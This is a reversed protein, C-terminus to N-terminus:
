PPGIPISEAPRTGLRENLWSEDVFRRLLWRLAHEIRPDSAVSAGAPTGDANVFGPRELRAPWQEQLARQNIRERVRQAWVIGFQDRFDRWVRDPGTL